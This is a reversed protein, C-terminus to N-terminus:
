GLEVAALPDDFANGQALRGLQALTDADVVGTLDRVFFVGTFYVPVSELKTDDANSVTGFSANGNADTTCPYVLVLARADAVANAHTPPVYIRALTDHPVLIQGMPYSVSALLQVDKTHAKPEPWAPQLKDWAQGVTLFPITNNTAM